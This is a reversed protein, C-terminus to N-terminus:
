NEAKESIRENAKESSRRVVLDMPLVIEQPGDPLENRLRRLLLHTATQGMEYVRQAMVTLFPEMSFTPPLDDFAVLAVDEPVRLGSERLARYAGIAIFNNAAVLATPRPHLDLVRRAMAQGGERTFTGYIVMREDVPLGAESLARRYGSVRDVATSVQRPGSLMAIRRHSLSLLHCV